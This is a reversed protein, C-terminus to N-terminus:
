FDGRIRLGATLSRDAFTGTFERDLRGGNARVYLTFPLVNPFDFTILLTSSFSRDACNM